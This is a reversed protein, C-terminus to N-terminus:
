EDVFFTIVMDFLTDRRRAAYMDGPLAATAIGKNYILILLSIRKTETEPSTEM